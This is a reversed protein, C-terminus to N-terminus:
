WERYPIECNSVSECLNKSKLFNTLASQSLEKHPSPGLIVRNFYPKTDGLPMEIYPILMSAGERFKIRDTEETYHYSILRWEQEEKFAKNKIISLVQLIDSKFRDLFSHYCNNNNAPPNVDLHEQRFTTILKDVLSRIADKQETEEYLCKAVRLNETKIMTNLIEETFEISIGKGHPTYSRWQSLLSQQESLSFVFINYQTTRFTNTWEQFQKLFITERDVPNGFALTPRLVDELVKCAHTIEESDNMYYAHSAWISKTNAIGILSSVGTYHYLSRDITKSFFDDIKRM